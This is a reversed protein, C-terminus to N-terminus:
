FKPRLTRPWQFLLVKDPGRVEVREAIGTEVLQRAQDQAMSLPFGKLTESGDWGHQKNFRIIEYEM